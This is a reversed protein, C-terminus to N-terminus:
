ALLYALGLYKREADKEYIGEIILCKFQICM